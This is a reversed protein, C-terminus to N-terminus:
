WARGGVAHDLSALSVKGTWCQDQRQTPVACAWVKATAGAVSEDFWVQGRVGVLATADAHQSRLGGDNGRHGAGGCAGSQFFRSNCRPFGAMQGERPVALGQRALSHSPTRYSTLASWALLFFASPGRAGERPSKPPAGSATGTAAKSGASQRMRVRRRYCSYVSTNSRVTSSRVLWSTVPQLQHRHTSLIPRESQCQATGIRGGADRSSSFSVVRLVESVSALHGVVCLFGVICFLLLLMCVSADRVKYAIKTAKKDARNVRREAKVAAKRARKEEVTEQRKRPRGKNRTDEAAPADEQLPKGEAAGGDQTEQPPISAVAVAAPPSPIPASTVHFILSVFLFDLLRALLSLVCVCVFLCVFVCVCVCVCVCVRRRYCGDCSLQLTGKGRAAAAQDAFM